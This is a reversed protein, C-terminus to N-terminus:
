AAPGKGGGSRLLPLNTGEGAFRPLTLSPAIRQWLCAGGM